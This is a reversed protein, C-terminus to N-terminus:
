RIYRNRIVVIIYTLYIIINILVFIGISTFCVGLLYNSVLLFYMGSIILALGGFGLIISVILAFKNISGDREFALNFLASNDNKITKISVITEIISLLLCVLTSALVILSDTEPNTLNLYLLLSHLPIQIISLILCIVRYARLSM